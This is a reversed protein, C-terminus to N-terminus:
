FTSEKKLIIGIDDQDKNKLTRYRPTTDYGSWPVGSDLYVRQETGNSEKKEYLVGNCGGLLFALAIALLGAGLSKGASVM